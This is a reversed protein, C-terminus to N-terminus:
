KETSRIFEEISFFEYKNILYKFKLMTDKRFSFNYYKITKQISSLDIPPTYLEWPHIYFVAYGYDKEAQNFMFESIRLPLFRFFVSGGPPINLFKADFVPMPIFLVDDEYYPKGYDYKHRLAISHISNDYKFGAKKLAKPVWKNKARYSWCPARHGLVQKGSIDEFLKKSYSAEKLFQKPHKQFLLEHDYSHFAIEHGAEAIKKLIEPNKKVLETVIFFTSKVNSEQFLALLQEVVTHTYYREKKGKFFPTHFWEELDVTMIKM